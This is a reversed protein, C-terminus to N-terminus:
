NHTPRFKPILQGFEDFTNQTAVGYPAYAVGKIKPIDEIRFPFQFGTHVKKKISSRLHSLHKIASKHNGRKIAAQVDLLRQSNSLSRFSADFGNNLFDCLTDWCYYKSLLPKLISTPRFKSSYSLDSNPFAEILKDIDYDFYKFIRSNHNMAKTSMKYVIPSKVPPPVPTDLIAEISLIFDAPHVTYLPICGFFHCRDYFIPLFTWFLPCDCVLTPILPNSIISIAIAIM